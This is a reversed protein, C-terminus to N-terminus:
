KLLKGFLPKEWGISYSITTAKPNFSADKSLEQIFSVFLYISKTLPYQIEGLAQFRTLDSDAIDSIQSFYELELKTEFNLLQTDWTFASKIYSTKWTDNLYDSMDYALGLEATMNGQNNKQLFYGLGNNYHYRLSVDALTNKEYSVTTFRYVNPYSTLIQSSKHRLYVYQDNALANGFLRIDNFQNGKIRKLRAYFGGGVQQDVDQVFSFRSYYTWSPTEDKNPDHAFAFTYFLVILGFYKM